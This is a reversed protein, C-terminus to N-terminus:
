NKLRVIEALVVVSHDVGVVNFFLRLSWRCTFRGTRDIAEKESMLMRRIEVRM